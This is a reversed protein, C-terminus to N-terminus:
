AYNRETDTPSRIFAHSQGVPRLANLPAAFNFTLKRVKAHVGDQYSVSIATGATIYYCM